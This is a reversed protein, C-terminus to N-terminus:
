LGILNEHAPKGLVSCLDEVGGLGGGAASMSERIHADEDAHVAGDAHNGTGVPREFRKASVVAGVHGKPDSFSVGVHRNFPASLTLGAVKTGFVRGADGTVEEV